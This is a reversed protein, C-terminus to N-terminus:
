TRSVRLALFIQHAEAQGARYSKRFAFGDRLTERVYGTLAQFRESLSGKGAMRALAYIGAFIFSFLMLYLVSKAGTYIGCVAFLKIGVYKNSGHGCFEARSFGSRKQRGSYDSISLLVDM